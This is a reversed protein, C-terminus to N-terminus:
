RRHEKLAALAVDYSNPPENSTLATIRPPTTRLSESAARLDALECAREEAHREAFPRSDARRALADDYVQPVDSMPTEKSDSVHVNTLLESCPAAAAARLASDQRRLWLVYEPLPMGELFTVHPDCVPCLRDHCHKVDHTEYM